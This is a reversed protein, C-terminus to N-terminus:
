KEEQKHLQSVSQLIDEYQVEIDKFVQTWQIVNWIEFKHGMGIVIIETKLAAFERLTPPVLFRNQGDKQVSQASAMYFRQFAQIHSDLPPLKSIKQVLNEWQDLSYVDLCRQSRYTSNTIICESLDGKKFLSVPLRFRGKQDM